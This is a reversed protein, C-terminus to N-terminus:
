LNMIFTWCSTEKEMKLLSTLIVSSRDSITFCVARACAKFTLVFRGDNKIMINQSQFDRHILSLETKQLRESLADLEKNLKGADAPTLKIKCVEWVLNELFYDHEWKYLRPGYSESLQV